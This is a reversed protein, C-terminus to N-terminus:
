IPQSFRGRLIQGKSGELSVPHVDGRIGYISCGLPRLAEECTTGGLAPSNKDGYGVPIAIKCNRGSKTECRVSSAM